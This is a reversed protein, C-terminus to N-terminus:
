SKPFQKMHLLLAEVVRHCTRYTENSVTENDKVITYATTPYVPSTSKAHIVFGNSRFDVKEGRDTIATVEWVAINNELIEACNMAVNEFGLMFGLNCSDGVSSEQMRVLSILGGVPSTRFIIPSQSSQRDVPSPSQEASSRLSLPSPKVSFPVNSFSQNLKDDVPSEVKSDDSAFCVGQLLIFSLMLMFVKQM